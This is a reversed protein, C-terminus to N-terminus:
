YGELRPQRRQIDQQANNILELCYKEDVPDYNHNDDRRFWNGNEDRVLILNTGQFNFFGFRGDELGSVRFM